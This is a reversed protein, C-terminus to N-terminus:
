EITDVLIKKYRRRLHILRGVKSLKRRDWLEIYGITGLACVLSREDLALSTV